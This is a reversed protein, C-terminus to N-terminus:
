DSDSGSDSDSAGAGGRAIPEVKKELTAVRTELTAITTKAEKHLARKKAHYERSKANRKQRAAEVDDAMKKHEAAMKAVGGIKTIYDIIAPDIDRIRVGAIMNEGKRIGRPKGSTLATTGVSAADDDHENDSM